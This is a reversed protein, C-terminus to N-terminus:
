GSLGPLRDLAEDNGRERSRLRDRAEAMADDRALVAEVSQALRGVDDRDWRLTIAGAGLDRGLSPVKDSYGVLVAPRAGLAAAIAAHYRMAVVVRAAAVETLVDALTPEALSVPTRMREAVQRHVEGDRDRQFAVLRVALGTRGAADDLAAAMGDLFWPPSPAPRRAGVPLLSRDATWPRLSVVLRDSTEVEPLPLALALDAAVVPPAVRIQRLLDASADDRVSVALAGRLMRRALKKGLRTELRGAGLGVGVTPLHRARGVMVRALHYPLNFPSTEDQLLGGGGIVM